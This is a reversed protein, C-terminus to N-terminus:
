APFRVYVSLMEDEDAVFGVVVKSGAASPFTPTGTESFNFVANWSTISHGGGSGVEVVLIYSHGNVINTPANFARNGDIVVRASAGLALNWDISSGDSLTQQQPGIDATISAAVSPRLVSGFPMFPMAYWNANSPDALLIVGDYQKDLTINAVGNVTESGDGDITVTNVSSDTRIYAIPFALGATAVPLLTQVLNGSTANVPILKGRDTEDITYNASKANLSNFLTGIAAQVAADTAGKFAAVGSTGGGLAVLAADGTAAGTGGQAIGIVGSISSAAVQHALEVNGGAVVLFRSEGSPVAIGTGAATKVTINFGGTTNNLVVYVKSSSPCIVNRDATLTGQINLVMSRAQDSLGNNTTLTFDTVDSHTIPTGGAIAQEILTGLNSNTTVGWTGSQDGTGILEIRLLSSYTSAM